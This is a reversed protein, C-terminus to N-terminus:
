FNFVFEKHIKDTVITIKIREIPLMSWEYELLQFKGEKSLSCLISNIEKHSESSARLAKIQASNLFSEEFLFDLIEDAGGRLTQLRAICEIQKKQTSM